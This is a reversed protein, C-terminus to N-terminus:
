PDLEKEFTLIVSNKDTKVTYKPDTNPSIQLQKQLNPAKVEEDFTLRITKTNINVSKDVPFSAVLKPNTEDKPGGEPNNIAACSSFLVATGFIFVSNRVFM